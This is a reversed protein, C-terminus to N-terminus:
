RSRIFDVIRALGDVAQPSQPSKVLFERQGRAIDDFWHQEISGGRQRYKEAFRLATARPHAIDSVAQLYCVPPLAVKEGRELALLPSGESMAEEDPWYAHSSPVILAALEREIADGAAYRQMLRHRELPEIVPWCLVVFSASANAADVSLPEREDLATLRPDDPRLACLMAQHGGSSTGLLGVNKPDIRLGSAHAKLWRLAYNIDAIPEPYRGHPPMRFDIACVVIGAKAIREDLSANQLRDHHCWAGGHVDVLAAFPGKGPPHYIRARLPAGPHHRYIVDTVMLENSNRSSRAPPPLTSGKTVHGIINAALRELSDDV